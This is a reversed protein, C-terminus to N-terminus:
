VCLKKWASLSQWHYRDTWIGKGQSTLVLGSFGRGDVRFAVEQHCTRVGNKQIVYKDGFQIEFPRGLERLISVSATLGLRERWLRDLLYADRTTENKLHPRNM